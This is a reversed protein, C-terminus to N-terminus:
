GCLIRVPRLFRMSVIRWYPPSAPKGFRPSDSYSSKPTPCEDVDMPAAKPMATASLSAPRALRLTATIPSPAIVAPCAKSAKFQAPSICSTSKSTIKFSLSIDMEGLTPASGLYRARLTIRSICPRSLVMLACDSFTNSLSGPASSIACFTSCLILVSALSPLWM